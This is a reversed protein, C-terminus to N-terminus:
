PVREGLLRLWYGHTYHDGWPCAQSLSYVKIDNGQHFNTSRMYVGLDSRIIYYYEADGCCDIGRAKDESKLVIEPYDPLNSM